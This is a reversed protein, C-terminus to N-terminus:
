GNYEKGNPDFIFELYTKGNNATIWGTSRVEYMYTYIGDDPVMVYTRNNIEMAYKQYYGIFYAKATEDSIGDLAIVREYYDLVHPVTRKEFNDKKSLTRYVPSEVKTLYEPVNGNKLFYVAIAVNEWPEADRQLHTIIGVLSLAKGDMLRAIVENSAAPLYGIMEQQWYVAVAFEDHENEPERRLEVIDQEQMLPLLEVGKHFRFGAVFSQLLYVKQSAAVEAISFFGLGPIGILRKLFGSRTM